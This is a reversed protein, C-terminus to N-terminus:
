GGAASRGSVAAGTGEGAELAAEYRARRAAVLADRLTGAGAGRVCRAASARRCAIRRAAVLEAHDAHVAPRGARDAVELCEM